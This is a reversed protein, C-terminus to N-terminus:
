AVEMASASIGCARASSKQPNLPGHEDSLFQGRGQRREYYYTDFNWTPQIMVASDFCVKVDIEDEFPEDVETSMMDRLIYTMQEVGTTAIPTNYVQLVRVTLPRFLIQVEYGEDFSHLQGHSYHKLMGLLHKKRGKWDAFEEYYEKSLGPLYDLCFRDAVSANTRTDEKNLTTNKM